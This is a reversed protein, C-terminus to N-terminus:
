DKVEEGEGEPTNKLLVRTRPLFEPYEKQMFEILKERVYVRLDWATSSNVASVLARIEMTRETANTVQMNSVKGDWLDTQKLIRELEKRLADVPIGYDAYIFVTGMIESSTRTWNQFPKQIFYTTPLVLRRKDWIRVVVYTLTIEEIWGWENEVIVVDDLRIPQTIAIQFGALVSGIVQQAALGLIIGAIGASAFLSLGLRRIEEFTMLALAIALFIVAFVIIRELIRFQTYIKRAKLNNSTDFDLKRIIIIRTLRTANIVLWAAGVIILITLFQQTGSFLDEDEILIDLNLRLAMVVVFFTLPIVVKRLIGASKGRAKVERLERRIRIVTYMGLSVASLVLAITIFLEDLNQPDISVFESM